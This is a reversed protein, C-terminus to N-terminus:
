RSLSFSFVSLKGGTPNRRLASCFLLRCVKIFNATKPVTLALDGFLPKPLSFYHGKTYSKRIDEYVNRISQFLVQDDATYTLDINELHVRNSTNICALLYKREIGSTEQNAAANRLASTTQSISSCSGSPTTPATRNSSSAQRENPSHVTDLVSFNSAAGSATAAARRLSEQLRIAGGAQVEEVDAYM